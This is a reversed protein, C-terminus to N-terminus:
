LRFFFKDMATSLLSPNGDRNKPVNSVVLAYTPLSRIISYIYEDTNILHRMQVLSPEDEVVLIGSGRFGKNYKCFRVGSGIDGRISDGVFVLQEKPLIIGISEAMTLMKGIAIDKGGGEMTEDTAIDLFYDSLNLYVSLRKVFTDANATFGFMPVGQRKYIELLVYLPGIKSSSFFEPNTLYIRDAIGAAEKGYLKLYNAARDHIYNGVSDISEINPNLREKIYIEPDKWKVIGESYISHMRDFERFSNGLKFGKIFTEIIEDENNGPFINNIAEKYLFDLHALTKDIDFFAISRPMGDGMIEIKIETNIESIDKLNSTIVIWKNGGIYPREFGILPNM